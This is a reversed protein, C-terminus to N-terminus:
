ISSYRKMESVFLRRMDKSEVKLFSEEPYVSVLKMMGEEWWEKMFFSENLSEKAYLATAQELDIHCHVFDTDCGERMNIGSECRVVGDPGVIKSMGHSGNELDTPNGACNSHVVWVRNEVARAQVQARYSGLQKEERPVPGDDHFTEWSLYFIVRAGRLVPLRVLEPHRSDHCIIISCCTKFLEFTYLERGPTAFADTPVLQIKAQNAVLNGEENVAIASNKVDGSNERYALGFICASRFKKCACQVVNIACPILHEDKLAREVDKVAYGTLSCEAFVAVRQQIDAHEVSIRELVKLINRLNEHVNGLVPINAAFAHM